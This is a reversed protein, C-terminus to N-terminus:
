RHLGLLAKLDLVQKNLEQVRTQAVALQLRLRAVLEPDVLQAGSDPPAPVGGEDGAMGALELDLPPIGWPGRPGPGPLRVANPFAGNALRRKITDRSVGARSAAENISLHDIVDYKSGDM